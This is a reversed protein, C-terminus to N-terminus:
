FIAEFSKQCVKKCSQFFAKMRRCIKLLLLKYAISLHTYKRM